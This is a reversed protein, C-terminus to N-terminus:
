STALRVSVDVRKTPSASLQQIPVIAADRFVYVIFGDAQANMRGSGFYVVDKTHPPYHATHAFRGVASCPFWAGMDDVLVFNRKSQGTSTVDMDGVEVVTGVFTGRFKLAQNKLPLFQKVAYPSSPVRLETTTRNFPSEATEKRLVTTGPVM